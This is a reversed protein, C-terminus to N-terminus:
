ISNFIVTLDKNFKFYRLKNHNYVIFTFRRIINSVILTKDMFNLLYYYTEFILKILIKDFLKNVKLFLM